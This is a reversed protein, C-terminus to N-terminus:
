LFNSLISRASKLQGNRMHDEKMHMFTADIDTKSYSNRNGLKELHSFYENRKHIYEALTEIDRQLQTKKKGKGQVFVLNVWQAQLLLNEYCKELDITECFGYREAIVALM